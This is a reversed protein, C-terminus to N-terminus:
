KLKKRCLLAVNFSFNNFVGSPQSIKHLFSQPSIFDQCVLRIVNSLAVPTSFSPILRIKLSVISARTYFFDVVLGFLKKARLVGSSHSRTSSGYVSTSSPQM